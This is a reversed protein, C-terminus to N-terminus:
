SGGEKPTTGTIKGQKGALNLDFSLTSPLTSSVQAAAVVGLFNMLSVLDSPFGKTTNVSSGTPLQGFDWSYDRSPPCTPQTPVYQEDCTPRLCEPDIFTEVSTQISPIVDVSTTATAAAQACAQAMAQAQALASACASAAVHVEAFATAHAQAEALAQACAYATAQASAFAASAAYAAAAAEAQASACAEVAIAVQAEAEAQALAATHAHALAEAQASAYAQACSLAQTYASVAAEAAAYTSANAQALAQVMAQVGALVQGRRSGGAQSSALAQTQAEAVAQACAQVGKTAVAEAQAYASAAAEAEAQAHSCAQACTKTRALVEGASFAGPRLTPKRTPRVLRAPRPRRMPQPCVRLRHGGAQAGIPRPRAHSAEAHARAFAEAQHLRRSSRGPGRRQGSRHRTVVAEVTGDAQTLVVGCPIATRIRESVLRAIDRAQSYANATTAAQAQAQALASIEPLFPQYAPEQGFGAWFLGALLLVLAPLFRCARSM